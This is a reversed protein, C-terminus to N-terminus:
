KRPKAFVTKGAAKDRLKAAYKVIHKAFKEDYGECGANALDLTGQVDSVLHEFGKWEGDARDMLTETTYRELEAGASPDKREFRQAFATVEDALTKLVQIRTPM